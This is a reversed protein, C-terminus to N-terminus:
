TLAAKLPSGSQIAVFDFGPSIDDGVVPVLRMSLLAKPMQFFQYGLNRLLCVPPRRMFPENGHSEFAVVEPTNQRFYEGASRLFAEEHGEIDVKLLRIPGLNLGRLFRGASRVQVTGLPQGSGELSAAGRNFASGYLPADHDTDSLAVRHVIVQHYGNLKLSQDFLDALEHQPEFAHIIGSRGVLPAAYATVVGVNAGVDLMTDGERLVMQCLRTTKRDFDGTLLIARGVYDQSKVYLRGGDRLPALAVDAAPTLRRFPERQALSVGGSLFPYRRTLARLRKLILEREM